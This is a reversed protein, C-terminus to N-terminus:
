AELLIEELREVLSDIAAVLSHPDLLGLEAEKALMEVEEAVGQAGLMRLASLARGGRLIPAAEGARMRGNELMRAAWQLRAMYVALALRAGAAYLIRAGAAELVTESAKEPVRAVAGREGVRRVVAVGELSEALRRPLTKEGPPLPIVPGRPSALGVLFVTEPGLRLTDGPRLVRKEGPALRKDNVYTGHRSGSGLPGHDVAAVGEGTEALFAHRRSIRPDRIGTAHAGHRGFIYTELPDVDGPAEELPIRGLFFGGQIPRWRPEGDDGVWYLIIM